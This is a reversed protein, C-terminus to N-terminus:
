EVLTAFAIINDRYSRASRDFSGGCTVLRLEPEETDGYVRETPFEEKPHQEVRDIEFVLVEGDGRAIEVRDGPELEHIRFFVAPGSRSDVHGAIIAPGVQGPAPAKTYWGARSFDGPVELTGDPNLGLRLLDSEVELRPIHLAAPEHDAVDEPVETPGGWRELSATDPGQGGGEAGSAVAARPEDGQEEPTASSAEDAGPAQAAEAAPPSAPAEPAGHEGGVTSGCGAALAAVVLAALGWRLRRPARRM